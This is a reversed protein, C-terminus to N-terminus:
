GEEDVTISVVRLERGKELVLYQGCAPCPFVLGAMAAAVGCAPCRGFAGIEQIVLEAGAAVTERAAAEFCFRLSDVLVGALTGVELEIRNITRAGAAEARGTVLEVINLALSMEHM